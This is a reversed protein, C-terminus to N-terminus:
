KGTCIDGHQSEPVSSTTHPQLILWNTKNEFNKYLANPVSSWPAFSFMILGTTKLKGSLCVQLFFFTKRLQYFIIFSNVEAAAPGVSVRPQIFFQHYYNRWLSPICFRIFIFTKQPWRFRQFLVAVIFFSIIVDINIAVTNVYSPQCSFHLRSFWAPWVAPLDAGCM